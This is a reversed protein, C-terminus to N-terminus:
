RPPLSKLFMGLRMAGEPWPGYGAETHIHGAAGADVLTSGWRAALAEAEVFPMYPDDRNAVLLSPFPLRDLPTPSFGQPATVGPGAQEIFADVADSRDLKPPAVLMAGAIRGPPAVEAAFATAICGLSHAVVVVSRGGSWGVAEIIAGVWDERRPRDYDQIPARRATKLRTEWRSQWHDPGSGTWGPVILIDVDEAKM